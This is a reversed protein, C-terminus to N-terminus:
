VYDAPDLSKPLSTFSRHGNETIVVLDEWRVGGQGVEYLGPEVTVVDGEAFTSPADRLGPQEHIELGVGHGLSHNMRPGERGELGKTTTGYGADVLVQCAARHAAQGSGGPRLEALGAEFAALVADSVRRWREPVEGAVVTRTLDGYYGSTAGRPFIDIIVPAGASLQGEGRYHPLACGPSGAIIMRPGEYGIEELVRSAAAMLHESTLPRGAQWLLGDRIEAEGIQRVVEVCAAEAARQAAHIWGQEEKSKRRRRGVLLEADIRPTVGSQRLAEYLGAPLRQSVRLEGAGHELAARALPEAWAAVGTISQDWGLERMDVVRAARSQRRARELELPSTVLMDDGDRFWLYASSGVEFGTAYRFDADGDGTAFLLFPHEM